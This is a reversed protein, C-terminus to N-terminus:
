EDDTIYYEYYFTYFDHKNKKEIVTDTPVYNYLAFPGMFDKRRYFSKKNGLIIELSDTNNMTYEFTDYIYQYKESPALVVLTDTQGYLFIKATDSTKNLLACVTKDNHKTNVNKCGISVFILILIFINTKM